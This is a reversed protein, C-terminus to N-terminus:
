DHSRGKPNLKYDVNFYVTVLPRKDTFLKEIDPTIFGVLGPSCFMESFLIEYSHSVDDEYLTAKIWKKLDAIDEKGSYRSQAKELKNQLRSPQFLVVASCLEVAFWRAM